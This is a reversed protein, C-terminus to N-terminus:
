GRRARARRRPSPPTLPPALLRDATTGLAGAIRALVTITLNRQRREVQSIYTRDVGAEHALAEQSFGAEKRAARVNRAAIEIVGTPDAVRKMRHACRV